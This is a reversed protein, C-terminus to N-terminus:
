QIEGVPGNLYANLLGSGEEEATGNAYSNLSPTIQINSAPIGSATAQAGAFQPYTPIVMQTSSMEIITELMGIVKDINPTDKSLEDICKQLIKTNM